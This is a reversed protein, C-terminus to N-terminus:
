RARATVFPHAVLRDLQAGSLGQARRLLAFRHMLNDISTDAFEDLTGDEEEPHFLGLYHGLEHAVLRALVEPRDPRADRSGCTQRSVFVADAPGAGGPVRPTLGALRTAGFPDERILCPGIIVDIVGDPRPPLTDVLAALAAVDSRGDLVLEDAAIAVTSVVDLAVGLEAGVTDALRSLDVDTSSSVRLRLAPTAPALTQSREIEVVGDGDVRAMTRCDVRGFTIQSLGEARGELVLLGSRRIMSTRWACAACEPGAFPAALEAGNADLASVVQLCGDAAHVRLAVRDQAAPLDVPPTLGTVDLDVTALPRWTLGPGARDHEAGPTACATLALLLPLARLM